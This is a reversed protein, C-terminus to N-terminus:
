ENNWFATEADDGYEESLWRDYDPLDKFNNNHSDNRYEEDNDDFVKFSLGDFFITQKFKRQFPYEVIVKNKEIKISKFNVISNGGKIEVEVIDDINLYQFPHNIESEIFMDNDDIESILCPFFRNFYEGDGTVRIGNILPINTSYNENRPQRIVRKSILDYLVEIYKGKHTFFTFGTHVVYHSEKKNIKDSYISAQLVKIVNNIDIDFLGSIVESYNM